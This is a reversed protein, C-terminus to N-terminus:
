NYEGILRFGLRERGVREKENYIIRDRLDAIGERRMGASALVLLYNSGACRTHARRERLSNRGDERRHHTNTRVIARRRSRASHKIQLDSLPDIALDASNLM